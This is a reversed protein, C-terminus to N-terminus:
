ESPWSEGVLNQFDKAAMERAKDEDFQNGIPKSTDYCFTGMLEDSNTQFREGNSLEIIYTFGVAPHLPLNTKTLKTITSM